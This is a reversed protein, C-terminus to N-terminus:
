RGLGAIFGSAELERVLSDDYFGHPDAERARPLDTSMLDLATQMAELRPTPVLETLDRFARYSEALDAASTTATYRGIVEQALAADTRFLYIAELYARAFRRLTEYRDRLV